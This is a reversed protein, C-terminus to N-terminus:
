TLAAANWNAATLPFQRRTQDCVWHVLAEINRQHIYGLRIAGPADNQNKIMSKVDKTQLLIFDDIGALGQLNIFEQTQRNPAANDLGCVALYQRLTAVDAM